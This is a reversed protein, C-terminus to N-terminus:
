SLLFLFGTRYVNSVFDPNRRLFVDSSYCTLRPLTTTQTTKVFSLKRNHLTATQKERRRRTTDWPPLAASPWSRGFARLARLCSSSPLCATLTKRWLSHHLRVPGHCPQKKASIENDSVSRIAREHFFLAHVGIM